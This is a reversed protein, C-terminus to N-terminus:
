DKMKTVEIKLDSIDLEKGLAYGEMLGEFFLGYEAIVKIDAFCTEYIKNIDPFSKSDIITVKFM